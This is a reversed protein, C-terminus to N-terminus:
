EEDMEAYANGWVTVIESTIRGRDSLAAGTEEAKMTEEVEIGALEEYLDDLDEDSLGLLQDQTMSFEELIFDNQEQNLLDLFGKTDM